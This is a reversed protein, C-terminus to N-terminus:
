HKLLVSVNSKRCKSFSNRDLQSREEHWNQFYSMYNSLDRLDLIMQSNTNSSCGFCCLYVSSGIFISLSELWLLLIGVNLLLALFVRGRGGHRHLRELCLSLLDRLILSEKVMSHEVVVLSSLFVFHLLAFKKKMWNILIQFISYKKAANHLSTSVPSQFNPKTIILFTKFFGFLKTYNQFYQNIKRIM